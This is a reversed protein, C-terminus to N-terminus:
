MNVLGFAPRMTSAKVVRSADMIFPAIVYTRIMALNHDPHENYVYTGDNARMQTSEHVEREIAVDDKPLLLKKDEFGLQMQLTSFFKVKETIAHGEENESTKVRSAFNVEVPRYTKEECINDDFLDLIVSRGAGGADVSVFSAHFHKGLMHLLKAQNTFSIRRVLMKFFLKSIGDKELWVGIVTPDPDYGIDASIGIKADLPVAPLKLDEFKVAGPKNKKGELILQEYNPIEIMCPRWHREPFTMHTLGGWEACVQNKWGQSNDGGYLKLLRQKMKESWTPDNWKEIKYQAYDDDISCKYLYSDRNGNPVGFIKIVHEPNLCGQLQETPERMYLQGEDVWVHDVHLGLVTTGSTGAIRGNLEYGNKFRIFYDPSRLVRKVSKRLLPSSYIRQIIKEFLPRLHAANPATILGEKGPNHRQTFLVDGEIFISKGVGRASACCINQISKDFRQLLMDEQYYRAAWPFLFGFFDIPDFYSEGLIQEGEYTKIVKAM